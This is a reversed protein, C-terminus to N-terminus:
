NNKTENEENKSKNQKKWWGIIIVDKTWCKWCVFKAKHIKLNKYIKGCDDCKVGKQFKM